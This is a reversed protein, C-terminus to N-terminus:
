GEAEPPLPYPITGLIKTKVKEFNVGEASLTATCFVNEDSGHPRTITEYRVNFAADDGRVRVSVRLDYADPLRRIGEVYSTSFVSFDPSEELVKCWLDFHKVAPTEFFGEENRLFKKWIIKEMFVLGILLKFLSNDEFMVILYLPKVCM